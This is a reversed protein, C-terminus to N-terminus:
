HSRYKVTISFLGYLVMLFIPIGFTHHLVVKDILRSRTTSATEHVVQCKSLVAQIQQYRLDAIEINLPNELQGQNIENVYQGSEVGYLYSHPPNSLGMSVFQEQLFHWFKSSPYGIFTYPQFSQIQDELKSFDKEYCACM